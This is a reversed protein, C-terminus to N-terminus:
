DGGPEKLGDGLSPAVLMEAAEPGHNACKNRNSTSTHCGNDREHRKM